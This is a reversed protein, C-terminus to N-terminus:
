ELPKSMIVKFDSPNLLTTILGLADSVMHKYEPNDNIEVTYNGDGTGSNDLVVKLIKGELTRVNENVFLDPYRSLDENVLIVASLLM